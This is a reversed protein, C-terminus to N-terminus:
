RRSSGSLDSCAPCLDREHSRWHGTTPDIGLAAITTSGIRWGGAAAAEYMMEGFMREEVTLSSSLALSCKCRDCTLEFQQRKATATEAIRRKLRAVAELLEDREHVM